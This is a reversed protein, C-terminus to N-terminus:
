VHARGIEAQLQDVGLTDALESLEESMTAMHTNIANRTHIYNMLFLAAEDVSMDSLKYANDVVYKPALCYLDSESHVTYLFPSLYDNYLDARIIDDNLFQKAFRFRREHDSAGDVSQFPSRLRIEGINLLMCEWANHHVFPNTDKFECYWTSHSCIMFNHFWNSRLESAISNNKFFLCLETIYFLDSKVELDEFHRLMAAHRDQLRM